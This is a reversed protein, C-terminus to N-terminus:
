KLFKKLQYLQHDELKSNLSSDFILNKILKFEKSKLEFRTISQLLELNKKNKKINPSVPQFVKKYTKVLEIKLREAKKM